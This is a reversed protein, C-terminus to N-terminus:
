LVFKWSLDWKYVDTLYLFTPPALVFCWLWSFFSFWRIVRCKWGCFLKKVWTGLVSLDFGYNEAAELGLLCWWDCHGHFSEWFSSPLSLLCHHAPVLSCRWPLKRWTSFFIHFGSCRRYHCGWRGGGVGKFSFTDLPIHTNKVWTHADKLLNFYM